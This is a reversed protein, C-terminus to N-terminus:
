TSESNGREVQPLPTPSLPLTSAIREFVAESQQLVESNWFRLVRFGQQRFWADCRQDTKSTQHQGGDVAIVLRSQFCVFDAVYPGIPQLRKFKAGVFRHARLHGGLLHEANTMRKRLVKATNVSHRPM